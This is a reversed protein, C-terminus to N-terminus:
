NRNPLIKLGPQSQNDAKPTGKITTLGDDFYASTDAFTTHWSSADGGNGPIANREMSYYVASGDLSDLGAM